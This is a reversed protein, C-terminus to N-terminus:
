IGLMEKAMSEAAEQLSDTLAKEASQPSDYPGIRDTSEGTPDEITFYWGPEEGDLAEDIFASAIAVTM